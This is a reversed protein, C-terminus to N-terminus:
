RASPALTLTIDFPSRFGDPGEERTFAPTALGAVLPDARLGDVFSALVTMSRAGVGSVAGVIRVQAGSASYAFRDISAGGSAAALDRLRAEVALASPMAQKMEQLSQFVPDRSPLMLERREDEAEAVAATLAGEKEQLEAATLLSGNLPIRTFRPLVFEQSLFLLGLLSLAFMALPGSLSPSALDEQNTNTNTMPIRDNYCSATKRVM